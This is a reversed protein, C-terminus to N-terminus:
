RQSREDDHRETSAPDVAPELADLASGTEGDLADASTEVSELYLSRPSLSDAHATARAVELVVDLVAGPPLDAPIPVAFSRAASGNAPLIVAVAEGGAPSPVTVRLELPYLHPADELRRVRVHVWLDGPRARVLVATARGVLGSDRSLLGPTQVGRPRSGGPEFDSDIARQSSERAADENARRWDGPPPGDFRALQRPAEDAPLEPWGLLPALGAYVM